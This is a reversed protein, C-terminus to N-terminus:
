FTVITIEEFSQFIKDFYNRLVVNVNGSTKQFNGSFKKLVEELIQFNKKFNRRFLDEIKM